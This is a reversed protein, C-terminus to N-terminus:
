RPDGPPAGCGCAEQNLNAGCRPCLGRCTERCLPQVPLTLLFSERLLRDTDIRGEELYTVDLDDPGLEKDQKAQGRGATECYLDLREAATFPFRELCRGCILAVGGAMEGSILIGRGSRGIHMTARVAAPGDWVEASVGLDLEGEPLDLDLGEPPIQSVDILM